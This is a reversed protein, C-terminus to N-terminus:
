SSYRNMAEDIKGAAVLSRDHAREGFKGLNKRGIGNTQRTMAIRGGDRTFEHLIREHLHLNSATKRIM